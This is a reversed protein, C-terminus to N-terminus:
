KLTPTLVTLNQLIVKHFSIESISEENGKIQHHINNVVSKLYCGMHCGTLWQRDTFIDVLNEVM